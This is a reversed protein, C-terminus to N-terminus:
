VADKENKQILIKMSDYGHSNSGKGFALVILIM